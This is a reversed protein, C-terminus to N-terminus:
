GEKYAGFQFAEADSFLPLLARSLKFQMFDDETAGIARINHFHAASKDFYALYHRINGQWREDHTAAYEERRHAMWDEAIRFILDLLEPLRQAGSSDFMTLAEISKVFRVYTGPDKRLSDWNIGESDALIGEIKKKNSVVANTLRRTMAERSADEIVLYGLREVILYILDRFADRAVDYYSGHKDDGILLADDRKVKGHALDSRLNYLGISWAAVDADTGFAEQMEAAFVKPKRGKQLPGFLSEYASVLLVVAAAPSQAALGCSDNFFTIANFMRDYGVSDNAALNTFAVALKDGHYAGFNLTSGLGQNFHVKRYMPEPGNNLYISRGGSEYPTVKITDMSVFFELAQLHCLYRVFHESDPNMSMGLRFEFEEDVILLFDQLETGDEAIAWEKVQRLYEVYEPKFLEPSAIAKRYSLIRAGKFEVPQPKTPDDVKKGNYWEQTEIVIGPFVTILDM